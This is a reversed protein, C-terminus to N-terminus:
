LSARRDEGLYRNTSKSRISDRGVVAWGTSRKFRKVKNKDLLYDLM